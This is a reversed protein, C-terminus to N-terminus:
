SSCVFCSDVLSCFSEMRLPNRAGDKFCKGSEGSSLLCRQRMVALCSLM